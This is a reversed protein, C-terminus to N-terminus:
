ADESEALPPEYSSWRLVYGDATVTRHKGEHGETALCTLHNHRPMPHPQGCQKM